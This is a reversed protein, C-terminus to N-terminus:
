MNAKREWREKTDLGWHLKQRHKPVLYAAGSEQQLMSSNQNDYNYGLDSSEEDECDKTRLDKCHSKSSGDKQKKKIKSKSKIELRRRHLEQFKSLQTQKLATPKFHPQLSLSSAIAAERREDEDDVKEM